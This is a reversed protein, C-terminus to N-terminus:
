SFRLFAHFVWVQFYFVQSPVMASASHGPCSMVFQLWWLVHSRCSCFLFSGSNPLDVTVDCLWNTPWMAKVLLNTCYQESIFGSFYWIEDPLKTKSIFGFVEFFSLFLWIKDPMIQNKFFLWVRKFFALREFDPKLFALNAVSLSVRIFLEAVARRDPSTNKENSVPRNYWTIAADSKTSASAQAM